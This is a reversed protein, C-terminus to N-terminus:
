YARVVSTNANLKITDRKERMEENNSKWKQFTPYLPFFDVVKYDYYYTKIIMDYLDPRNALLELAETFQKSGFTVHDTKSTTLAKHIVSFGRKDIWSRCCFVLDVFSSLIPWITSYVTTYVM